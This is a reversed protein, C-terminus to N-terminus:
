EGHVGEWNKGHTHLGCTHGRRHVFPWNRSTGLRPMKLVQSDGWMIILTRTRYNGCLKGSLWEMGPECVRPNLKCPWKAINLTVRTENPAPLIIYAHEGKISM